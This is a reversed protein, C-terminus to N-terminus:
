KPKIKGPMGYADAIKDIAMEMGYIYSPSKIDIGAEAHALIMAELADIAAEHRDYNTDAESGGEVEEDPERHLDSFIASGEPYGPDKPDRKKTMIVTIGMIQTEIKILDKANASTITFREKPM